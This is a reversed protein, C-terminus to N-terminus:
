GMEKCGARRLRPSAASAPPPAPLDSHGFPRREAVSPGAIRLLSGLLPAEQGLVAPLDRM